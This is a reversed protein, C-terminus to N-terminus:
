AQPSSDVLEWDEPSMYLRGIAGDKLLVKVSLLRRFYKSNKINLILFVENNIIVPYDLQIAEDDTHFRWAELRNNKHRYLKGILFEKKPKM